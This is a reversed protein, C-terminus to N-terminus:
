GKQIRRNAIRRLLAAVRPGAGKAARRIRRGARVNVSPRAPKPVPEPAPTPAPAPAPRRPTFDTFLHLARLQALTGRFADLDVNGSYGDVEGSSAFQSLTPTVGGYPTWGSGNDGPYLASGYAHASSPYASSVLTWGTLAPAGIQQWYWHSLYLLTVRYGRRHMEARFARADAMTAGYAELDIMIRISRDGHIAKVCNDAQQVAPSRTLFHYAAGLAGAAKVQQWKAWFTPDIYSAGESAKPIFFRYGQRVLHDAGIDLGLQYHSEDLGYTTM